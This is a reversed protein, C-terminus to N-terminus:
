IANRVEASYPKEALIFFNWQNSTGGCETVKFGVTELMDKMCERNFSHKHTPDLRMGSLRTDDPTTIGVKGGERLVRYWERLTRLPNAYHEINHRAIVYDLENDEFMYLNDGSAKIDAQSEGAMGGFEGIQKGGVVMDVGITDKSIKKDGCGVDIGHGEVIKMLCNDDGYEEAGAEYACPEGRLTDLWEKFGHKRIIAFNTDETMQPSNWGLRATHDGHVKNGTVFGHHYVFSDRRAILKYGRKRFEISWDFDDGGPLTEDLGGIEELASRRMLVCFGILFPVEIIAPLDKNRMNQFGAVVNSSPGVAAVSEDNDLIARMKALWDFDKPLIHTDDNMLLVYDYDINKLHELGANIGGMWGLNQGTYIIDPGILYNNLEEAGNNVVTINYCDATNEAISHICPLLFEMNDYTPIIISIPKLESM